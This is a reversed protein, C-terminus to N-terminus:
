ISSFQTFHGYGLRGPNAKSPVSKQPVVKFWHRHYEFTQCSQVVKQSIWIHSLKSLNYGTRTWRTWGWVQTPLGCTVYMIAKPPRHQHHHQNYQIDNICWQYWTSMGCKHNDEEIVADCVVVTCITFNTFNHKNLQTWALKVKYWVSTRRLIM